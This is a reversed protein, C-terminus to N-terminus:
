FVLPDHVYTSAPTVLATMVASCLMSFAHSGQPQSSQPIPSPHSGAPETAVPQNDSLTIFPSGFLAYRHWRQRLTSGEKWRELYLDYEDHAEHDESADPPALPELLEELLEELLLQQEQEVVTGGASGQAPAPSSHAPVQQQGTTMANVGRVPGATAATAPQGANVSDPSAPQKNAAPTGAVQAALAADQNNDDSSLLQQQTCASNSADPGSETSINTCNSRKVSTLDAVAQTRCNGSMAHVHETALLVNSM